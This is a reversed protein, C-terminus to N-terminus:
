FFGHPDTIDYEHRDLNPQVVQLREGHFRKTRKNGLFIMVDGTVNKESTESGGSSLECLSPVELVSPLKYLSKTTLHKSASVSGHLPNYVADSILKYLASFLKGVSDNTWIYLIQSVAPSFYRSSRSSLDCSLSLMTSTTHM